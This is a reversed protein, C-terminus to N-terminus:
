SHLSTFLLFPSAILYKNWFSFSSPSSIFFTSVIAIQATAKSTNHEKVAAVADDITEGAIFRRVVRRVPGFNTVFRRMSDSTSLRILFNRLM